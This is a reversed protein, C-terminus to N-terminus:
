GHAGVVLGRSDHRLPLGQRVGGGQGFGTHTLVTERSAPLLVSWLVTGSAFVATCPMRLISGTVTLL